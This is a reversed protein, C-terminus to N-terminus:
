IFDVSKIQRSYTIKVDLRSVEVSNSDLIIAVGKEVTGGVEKKDEKRMKDGKCVLELNEAHEFWGCSLQYTGDRQEFDSRWPVITHAEYGYERRTFTDEKYCVVDGIEFKVMEKEM